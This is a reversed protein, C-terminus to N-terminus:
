NPQSTVPLVTLEVSDLPPMYYKCEHRQTEKYYKTRLATVQEMARHVDGRKEQPLIHYHM